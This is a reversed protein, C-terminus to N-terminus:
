SLPIYSLDRSGLGISQLQEASSFICSLSQQLDFEESCFIIASPKHSQNSVSALLADGQFLLTVLWWSINTSMKATRVWITNPCIMEPCPRLEGFKLCYLASHQVPLHLCLCYIVSWMPTSLRGTNVALSAKSIDPSIPELPACSTRREELSAPYWILVARSPTYPLMSPHGHRNKKGWVHHTTKPTKKKPPSIKSMASHKADQKSGYCM